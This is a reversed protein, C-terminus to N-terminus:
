GCNGSVGTRELRQETRREAGFTRSVCVDEGFGLSGCGRPKGPRQVIVPITVTQEWGRGVSPLSPNM